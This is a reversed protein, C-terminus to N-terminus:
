VAKSFHIQLRKFKKQKERDKMGCKAAIACDGVDSTGCREQRPEDLREKESPRGSGSVAPHGIIDSASFLCAFATFCSEPSCSSLGIQSDRRFFTFNDWSSGYFQSAHLFTTRLEFFVKSQQVFVTNSLLVFLRHRSGFGGERLSKRECIKLQLRQSSCPFTHRLSKDWFIWGLLQFPVHLTRLARLFHFRVKELHSCLPAFYRNRVFHTFCQASIPSLSSSCMTAILRQVTLTQSGVSDVRM